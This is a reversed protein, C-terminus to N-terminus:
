GGAPAPDSMDVRDTSAALDAARAADIDLDIDAVDDMAGVYSSPFWFHAGELADPPVEFPVSCTLPLGPQAAGCTTTIGPLGGFERGDASMLRPEAATLQSAVGESSWAIAADTPSWTLDVVLWLSRTVAVQADTAVEPGARVGTVTVNYSRISVTEGVTGPRFFSAAYVQQPDPLWSTVISGVWLALVVILGTLLGSRTLRM